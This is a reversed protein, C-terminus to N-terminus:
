SIVSGVKALQCFGGLLVDGRFVICVLCEARAEVDSGSRMLRTGTEARGESGAWRWFAIDSATRRAVPIAMLPARVRRGQSLIVLSVVDSTM